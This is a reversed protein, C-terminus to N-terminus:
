DVPGYGRRTGRSSQEQIGSSNTDTKEGGAFFRKEDEEDPNPEGDEERQETADEGRAQSDTKTKSDWRRFDTDSADQLTGM